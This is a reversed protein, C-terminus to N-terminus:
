KGKECRNDDVNIIASPMLLYLSIKSLVISDGSRIVKLKTILFGLIMMVFLQLIKYILLKTVM